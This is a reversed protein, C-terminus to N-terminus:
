LMPIILPVSLSERDKEEEKEKEGVILMAAATLYLCEVDTAALRKQLM